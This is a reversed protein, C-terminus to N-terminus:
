ILRRSYSGIDFDPRPYPKAGSPPWIQAAMEHALIEKNIVLNGCSGVAVAIVARCWRWAMMAPSPGTIQELVDGIPITPETTHGAM